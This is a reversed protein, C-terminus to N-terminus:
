EIPQKGRVLGLVLSLKLEGAIFLLIFLIEKVTPQFITESRM